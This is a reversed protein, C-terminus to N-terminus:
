NKVKSGSISDMYAFVINKALQPVELLDELAEQSFPVEEGKDDKIGKWGTIVERCFENDSSKEGDMLEKFRSQSMRKFEADFTQKEFKGGSVPVDHSVPWSYSGNKSLVFM